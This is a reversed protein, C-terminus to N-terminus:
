QQWITRKYEANAFPEGNVTTNGGFGGLFGLKQCNESIVTASGDAICSGYDLVYVTQNQFWYEKVSAGITNADTKCPAQQALEEVKTRVCTPTDKAVDVEDCATLGATVLLLSYITRKM